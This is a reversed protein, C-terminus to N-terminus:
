PASIIESAKPDGRPTAIRVAFAAGVSVLVVVLGFAVRSGPLYFANMEEVSAILRTTPAWLVVSGIALPVIAWDRQAAAWPLAVIMLM